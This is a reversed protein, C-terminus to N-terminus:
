EGNEKSFGGSRRGIAEMLKLGKPPFQNEFDGLGRETGERGLLRVSAGEERGGLKLVLGLLHVRDMHKSHRNIIVM